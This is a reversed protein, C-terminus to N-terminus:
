HVAVGSSAKSRPFALVLPVVTAALAAVALMTDSFALTAGQQSVIAAIQALNHKTPLVGQAFLHGADIANGLM